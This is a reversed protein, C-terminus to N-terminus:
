SAKNRGILLVILHAIGIGVPAIAIYQIGRPLDDDFKSAGSNQVAYLTVFAAIGLAIWILGSLLLIRQVNVNSRRVEQEVPPLTVGKEIATLRERHIMIRRHHSLYQRFAVFVILAVIVIATEM